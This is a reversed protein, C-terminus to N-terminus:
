TLPRAPRDDVTAGLLENPPPLIRGTLERRAERAVASLPTQDGEALLLRNLPSPEGAHFWERAHEIGVAAVVSAVLSHLRLVAGVTGPRPDSGRRRWAYVTGRDIGAARTADNLGVGLWDQIECLCREVHSAPSSADEDSPQGPVTQSVQPMGPALSLRAASAMEITPALAAALSVQASSIMQITPALAAALSLRATSVLPISEPEETIATRPAPLLDQERRLVRDIRDLVRDVDDSLSPAPVYTTPTDELFDRRPDHSVRTQTPM